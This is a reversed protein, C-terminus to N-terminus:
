LLVHLINSIRWTDWDGCVVALESGVGGETGIGYVIWDTSFRIRKCGADGLSVL